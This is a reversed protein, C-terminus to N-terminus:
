FWFPSLFRQFGNSAIVRCQRYSKGSIRNFDFAFTGLSEMNGIETPLTGNIQNGGVGQWDGWLWLTGLKSLSGIESPLPGSLICSSLDLRRLNSLLGVTSPISGTFENEYLVLHALQSSDLSSSGVMGIERPITGTLQNVHLALAELNTLQGIRSSLTGTLRNKDLSISKLSSLLFLEEPITGQLNNGVLWLHRLTGGSQQYQQQRSRTVVSSSSSTSNTALLFVDDLDDCARTISTNFTYHEQLISVEEENNFGVIEVPPPQLKTGFWECEHHDYSLWLDDSNWISDKDGSGGTSYYLTALVFRQLLRDSSYEAISPDLKLWGFAQHQPSDVVSEINKATNEPLLSLIYDDMSL